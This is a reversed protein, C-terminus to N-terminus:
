LSISIYQHLHTHSYHHNPMINGDWIDANGDWIIRSTCLRIPGLKCVVMFQTLLLLHSECNSFWQGTRVDAKHCCSLIWSGYILWSVIASAVMKWAFPYCPGTMAMALRYTLMPATQSSPPSPFPCAPLSLPAPLYSHIWRLYHM